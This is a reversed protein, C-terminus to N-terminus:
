RRPMASLMGSRAPLTQRAASATTLNSRLGTFPRVASGTLSNTTNSIPASTGSSQGVKRAAAIAAGIQGFQASNLTGGAIANQVASLLETARQTEAPSLIGSQLLQQIAALGTSLRQVNAPNGILGGNQGLLGGSTGSNSQRAKRAAAIAQGIQQLEAPNLAGGAFAGEVATLLATTRQTQEPNLVGSQLLEQLAAFAISLQQTSVGGAAGTANRASQALLTLQGCVLVTIIAAVSISRPFVKKM